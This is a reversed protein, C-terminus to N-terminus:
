FTGSALLGYAGAPLSAPSFRITPTTQAARVHSVTVTEPNLFADVVMLAGLGQGIGDAVILVKYTAEMDCSRGTVGGCDGRDFLDMWPGAVPVFMRHDADRDSTAAVVVGAGYTLGFTLIGSTLMLRSPGGKGTVTESTAQSPAPPAVITEQAHAWDSWAAVVAMPPLLIAATWTALKM